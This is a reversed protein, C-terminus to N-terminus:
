ALKTAIRVETQTNTVSKMSKLDGALKVHIIATGIPTPTTAFTPQSRRHKMANAKDHTESITAATTPTLKV